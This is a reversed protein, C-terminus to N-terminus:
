LTAESSFLQSQTLNVKNVSRKYSDHIIIYSIEIQTRPNTITQGGLRCKIIIISIGRNLLLPNCFTGSIDFLKKLDEMKPINRKFILNPNTVGRHFLNKERKQKLIKIVENIEQKKNNYNFILIRQTLVYNAYKLYYAFYFSM